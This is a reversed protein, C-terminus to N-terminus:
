QIDTFATSQTVVRVDDACALVPIYQRHEGIRLPPLIDTMSQLFPHLCAACLIMSLPCGQRVGSQISIPGTLTGNIQVSVTADTYLAQIREIFWESIGYPRLNRFLYAHSIRDFANHFDLTLICLPTGM